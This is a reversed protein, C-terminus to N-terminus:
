AALAEQELDRQAKEFAMAAQHREQSLKEDAPCLKIMLERGVAVVCGCALKQTRM